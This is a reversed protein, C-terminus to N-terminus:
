FTILDPDPGTRHNINMSDIRRTDDESLQFDFISFNEILREVKVTKPITVFGKEMNWRLVIQAPTKGYKKALDNLIESDNLQGRMLPSWSEVVVGQNQFYMVSTEQTLKPHLEFQNIMPKIKATLLLNDFHHPHFNSVGIARVKGQNYLQELARWTESNLPKPWHILYLDVYDLGLRELSKDFARLTTLFGQDDNWVKTTVFIDARDIGSKRIGEGVGEENKYVAATDIHRYGIKIAEVIIDAVEDNPIKWTGLGIAPIEVGNLLKRTIM